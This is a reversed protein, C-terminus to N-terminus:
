APLAVDRMSEYVRRAGPLPPWSLIGLADDVYATARMGVLVSSVGPTSAAVWLARRSLTETRREPPLLPDLVASVADTVARSQAAAKARLANLLTRLEPLYRNRWDRWREAMPGTIGEDLAQVAESLRPLIRHAEIQTWHDLGRVHASSGRLDASWRFFEAPPTAGEPAQLGAAIDRRYEAELAALIALQDDISTDDGEAAPVDALRVMGEGAMANLPRNVLVGLGNAAACELVTQELDPGNNRELAAGPEFLNMPLQLVRFRHGAGGAQRAAELMRTLSTAEPDDAPRTCTNSSVGYCVIRGAAAESELFAFSEGLRRYFEERRKPLTGHSREHADALYYEPNHLLCVDLTQLGLRELSRALQDKLFEPHICHWIGEGYKVMEPFLNGAAERAMAQELNQGQVYGIKSVVVAEERSLRGERSLEALVEGVLRESGGDTYNTSTDVLNAGELLSKRLAERHAPTEDDVRYGGFGVRSCVLGTKGLPGYGEPKGAARMRAAYAGTGEATATGPLRVALTQHPASAGSGQDALAAPVEAPETVPRRCAFNRCVYLASRGDVLGKGALLPFTADDGSPNGHEVIRNPLYHRGVERRLAELDSAGPRGVFALEVPGELLLDVVALTRAFARPHRAIAKAYARVARAGEERLDDRGLHFSLRALVHAAVANASPTAGDHGERHRVILAEHDRATSWFGGAEDAFDDITRQALAEAERLWRADGGAEYLDILGEALCAYDELYAALHAQGARYTRLLRGDAGRMEKLVFAAARAAAALYRNDGLVRYGEAMAGIMLGNWATLVKDDLGPPVRKRRADYLASRAAAVDRELEDPDLGLSKAVRPGTRSTNPISKGEWNGRETIDYYACFRRAKEEDGLAARVEDPTWVFFKGEEGESDADTASYFGGFPATMERLVYDLIEAAVRSYFADGTAQHGELYVKALQANDYLMKEFHPVLWHDDVSYRHFGGGVQDYMGGRAMEDLTKRVMELAREDAFRRHCRLLLSLSASPPFKPAPGFGGSRPDFDRGLQDRATRLEAQGVGGGPAARTSDRLHGTVEAAQTPLGDRDTKWLDAIRELLTTFGPRGYAGTPPFYTGAFFPEQEPTLFVTMPWGGQGHNMALTAAMYIDDLDPREERDVKVCVFDRNMREAVAEDEFSEHAMVHCWHCASYGISLLIPKEESRARALAEEGWPYWDVPNHAHQLLYPSTSHILRNPRRPEAHETM